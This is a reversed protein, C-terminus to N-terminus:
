PTTTAQLNFNNATPIAIVHQCTASDDSDTSAGLGNRRLTLTIRIGMPPGIANDNEDIGEWEPQWTTGDWYEFLINKVESAIIYPTPDGIDTPQIDIDSSTAQSLERRALAASDTGPNVLWYMVRRLDSTIPTAPVTTDIDRPTPQVRFNSLILSTADGSVGLNFSVTPPTPQPTTSSSSSPTTSSGSTTSTAPTASTTAAAVVVTPPGLQSLIDNRIRTLVFQALTGEDMTERGSHVQRVHMNLTLYLALLLMMGMALALVMELLSFAERRTRNLIRM